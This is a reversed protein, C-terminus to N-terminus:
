GETMANVRTQLQRHKQTAPGSNNNNSCSINVVETVGHILHLFRRFTHLEM